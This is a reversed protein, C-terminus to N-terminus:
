KKRGMKSKNVYIPKTSTDFKLTKEKLHLSTQAGIDYKAEPGNVKAPGPWVM